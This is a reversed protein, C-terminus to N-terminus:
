RKISHRNVKLLRYKSQSFVNPFKEYFSYSFIHFHNKTVTSIFLNIISVYKAASSTHYHLDFFYVGPLIFNWEKFLPLGIQREPGRICWGSLGYCLSTDTGLSVM